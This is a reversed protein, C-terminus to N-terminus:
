RAPRTWTSRWKCMARLKKAILDPPYTTPFQYVPQADKGPGMEIGRAVILAQETATMKDGNEEAMQILLTRRPQLKKEPQGAAARMELEKRMASIASRYNRLNKYAESVGQAFYLTDPAKDGMTKLALTMGQQSLDLVKRYDKQGTARQVQEKLSKVAQEDSNGCAALPMALLLSIAVRRAVAGFLNFRITQAFARM